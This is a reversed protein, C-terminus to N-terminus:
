RPRRRRRSSAPMLRAKRAQATAAYPGSPAAALYRDYAARAAEPRSQEQALASLLHHEERHVLYAPPPSDNRGLDGGRQEALVADAQARRGARDLALVLSLAIDHRSPQHPDRQAERLFALAEELHRAAAAPEAVPAAMAVHAAELLVRARRERSPLLAVRPALVRYTELAAELKGAARQALALDHMAIPQDIGGPDAARAAEFLTLAVEAQGRALAIRARVVKPAPRSPLLAEAAKAASEAASPDGAIRAQARALLRCYSRLQPTGATTWISRTEAASGGVRATTRCEVPRGSAAAAAVLDAAPATATAALLILPGFVAEIM